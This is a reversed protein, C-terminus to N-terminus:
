ASMASRGPRHRKMLQQMRTEAPRDRECRAFRLSMCLYRSAAMLDDYEKVIRGEERHYLRFEEWWDLLHRAVKLRGTYMRDLMDMLGAEVGISGDEHQAHEPLMALGQRRYQEALQEGSDKSHQLGDHPWAVPIWGGRAKIAAAHIVPTSERVRYCDYIYITDADRDWRAWVAATPHDWGFDLGCISPWHRPFDFADFAISAEAVPFIRGSGLIPIGKVRADKEHAPYSNVIREREEPTYHLADDITMQVVIRDKRGIDNQDPLIFRTVVDSMGLLPTFTIFVMGGTANTRTLAETYIDSPPEEDMWIFHLTDGQWKERGREYSKFLLTSVGGSIHRVTVSDLANPVGRASTHEIICEGPIAGTGYAEVQEPTGVLLKQVTDRTTESTVGGAWCRVPHNFRRGTWWDPYRGTLHLATEFAGAWTKGLQNGAMFLRERYRVGAEHFEIQKPYRAYEALRNREKRRKKEALLRALEEKMARLEEAAVDM